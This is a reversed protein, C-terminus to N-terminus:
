VNLFLSAGHARFTKSSSMAALSSSALDSSQVEVQQIGAGAKGLQVTSPSVIKFSGLLM